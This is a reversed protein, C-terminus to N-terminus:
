LSDHPLEQDRRRREVELGVMFGAVYTSALGGTPNVPVGARVREGLDLMVIHLYEEAAAVVVQDDVERAEFWDAIRKADRQSVESVIVSAALLEERGIM